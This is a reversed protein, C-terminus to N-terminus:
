GLVLNVLAHRVYLFIEQRYEGNFVRTNAVAVNKAKIISLIYGEIYSMGQNIQYLKLIGIKFSVLQKGRGTLLWLFFPIGM